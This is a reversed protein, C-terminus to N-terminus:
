CRRGLSGGIQNSTNVLASAVGAAGPATGAPGLSFAPVPVASVGGGILALAPAVYESYGGVVTTQRPRKSTNSSAVTRARSPRTGRAPPSADCPQHTAQHAVTRGRRVANCRTAESREPPHTALRVLRPRLQDNPLPRRHRHGGAPRCRRGLERGCDARDHSSSRPSSAHTPVGADEASLTPFPL